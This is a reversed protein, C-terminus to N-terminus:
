TGVYNNGYSLYSTRTIDHNMARYLLQRIFYKYREITM